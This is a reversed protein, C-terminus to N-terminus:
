RTSPAAEGRERGRDSQRQRPGRRWDIACRRPGGPRASRAAPRPAVARPATPGVVLAAAGSEAAASRMAPDAADLDMEARWGAGPTLSRTTDPKSIRGTTPM